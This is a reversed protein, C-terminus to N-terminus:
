VTFMDTYGSINIALKGCKLAAQETPIRLDVSYRLGSGVNCHPGSSKSNRRYIRFNKVTDLATVSIPWSSIPTANRTRQLALLAPLRKVVFSPSRALSRSQLVHRDCVATTTRRRPTTTAEASM